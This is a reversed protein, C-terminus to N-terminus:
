IISQRARAPEDERALAEALAAWLVLGVGAGLLLGGITDTLWHVGLYTRSLAMLVTWLAAGLYAWWARLLVIAVLAITAANSTHGSPYAPSTAAVLMHPPRERDIVHKLYQTASSTLASALVFFLAGWPRRVALLGLVVLVPAAVSAIFGGGAANFFLAVPTLMPSRHDVVAAM